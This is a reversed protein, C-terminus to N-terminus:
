NVADFQAFVQRLVELPYTNVVFQGETRKRPEIGSARSAVSASKGLASADTSGLRRKLSAAYEKVTLFGDAPARNDEPAAGPLADFDIVEARKIGDALIEFRVATRSRQPGFRGCAGPNIVLVGREDRRIELIHTHGCVVLDPSELLVEGNGWEHTLLVRLGAVVFQVREAGLTIPDINGRVFRLKASVSRLQELVDPGVDGAHWVEDVGQCWELVETDIMGHTDSLALVRM